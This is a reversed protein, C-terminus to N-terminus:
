APRTAGAPAERLALHRQEQRLTVARVVLIALIGAVASLSDGAMVLRTASIMGDLSSDFVGSDDIRLLSGSVLFTAWWWNITAPVPAGDPPHSLERPLSPDSARWVDNVISKPRIMSLIPVFWAGVAWGAPIRLWQFGLAGLNRYARRLWVIFSIGAVVLALTQLDLLALRRSDHAEAEELTVGAGDRVRELLGLMQVDLVTAVFDLVVNVVLLAVVVNSVRTISKYPERPTPHEPILRDITRGTAERQM